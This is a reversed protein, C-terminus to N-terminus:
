PTTDTVTITTTVANGRLFEVKIEHNGLASGAFVSQDITVDVGVITLKVGAIPLGDLLVNKIENNGDTSACDIIIDAPDNKDFEDDASEITNTPANKLYVATYFDDYAAEGQPVKAKVDGTDPAPRATINLTETQPEKTNTRTSGSVSPRSALVYYLVHRTKKADGDFEFMLAFHKAKADKNEILAGNADEIEGLVDKRFDDPILAIELNGTYGDNTNEEFYVSDDAYFQVSEGAADLTLNVAGRIPKPTDYTIEDDTETVVAYHVNKLGFKVKNSV